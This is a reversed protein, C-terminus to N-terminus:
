ASNGDNMALTTAGGAGITVTFTEGATVAFTKECYGGGGGGTGDGEQSEVAANKNALFAGQGGGGTIVVKIRGTLPATFTKSAGIVFQTTPIPPQAGLLVAM